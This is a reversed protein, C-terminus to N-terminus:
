KKNNNRSDKIISLSDKHFQLSSHLEKVSMKDDEELIMMKREKSSEGSEKSSEGSEKSSEGFTSTVVHLSREDNSCYKVKEYRKTGRYGKPAKSSRVHIVVRRSTVNFFRAYFWKTFDKQSINMIRSSEKSWRTFEFRGSSIEGYLRRAEDGMSDDPELKEQAVARRHQVFESEPMKKLCDHFDSIFQMVRCESEEATVADGKVIFCFGLVQATMRSSADVYYGLQMKTRLVDYFPEDIIQSLVDVYCSEDLSSALLQFYIETVSNGEDRNFCMSTSRLTRDNPVVVCKSETRGYNTSKEEMPCMKLIEAVQKSIEISEEPVVNGMVFVQMFSHRDAKEGFLAQCHSRVTDVDCRELAALRETPSYVGRDLLMRLRMYKSQRSPKLFKNRYGRSLTEKAVQLRTELEKWESLMALGRALQLVFGKLKANFGYVHLSLGDDVIRLSCGLQGVDAQYVLPTMRDEFLALLIETLVLHDVSDIMGPCCLLFWAHAKPKLFTRDQKHWVNYRRDVHDALVPIDHHESNEIPKLCLGKKSVLFPNPKPFQLETEYPKIKEEYLSIWRKIVNSEFRETVYPVEFWPEMNTLEHGSVKNDGDMPSSLISILRSPHLQALVDNVSKPEIEGWAYPGFVSFELPYILMQSAIMEATSYSDERSEFRFATSQIEREEDWFWKQVGVRRLMGIYAIVIDVIGSVNLLGEKTLKMSVEFYSFATNHCWGQEVDVGASLETAWRRRKLAALISNECEHGILASVYDSARRARRNVEDRCTSPKLDWFLRLTHQEKVASMVTLTGRTKEDLPSGHSSFSPRSNSPCPIKEFLDRVLSETHDLSEGGTLVCLKM